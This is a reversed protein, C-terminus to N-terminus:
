EHTGDVEMAASLMEEDSIDQMVVDNTEINALHELYVNDWYKCKDCDAGRMGHYLINRYKQDMTKKFQFLMERVIDWSVLNNTCKSQFLPKGENFIWDTGARALRTSHWYFGCMSLNIGTEAKHRNFVEMPTTKSGKLRRSATSSSRNTRWDGRSSASCRGGNQRRCRPPSRSRSRSRTRQERRAHSAKSSGSM